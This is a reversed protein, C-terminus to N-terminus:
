RLPFLPHLVSQNERVSSRLYIYSLVCIYYVFINIEYYQNPNFNSVIFNTIFFSIPFAKNIINNSKLFKYLLYINLAVFGTFSIFGQEVFVNLWQSHLVIPDNNVGFNLYTMANYNGSGVGSLFNNRILTIASKFQFLRYEETNGRYEFLIKYTLEFFKNGVLVLMFVSSILIFLRKIVSKETMKVSFFAIILTIAIAVYAIRTFTLLTFIFDFILAVLFIKKRNRMYIFLLISFLIAGLNGAGNNVGVLGVVRKVTVLGETYEIDSNFDYLLLKKNTIYQLFGLISNFFSVYLIIKEFFYISINFSSIFCFFLALLGIVLYVVLNTIYLEVNFIGGYFYQLFFSIYIPLLLILINRTIFLNSKQLERQMLLFLIISSILVLLASHIYIWEGNKLDIRIKTTTIICLFLSIFILKTSFEKKVLFSFCFIYFTFTLFLIIKLM